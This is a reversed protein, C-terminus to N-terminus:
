MVTAECCGTVCYYGPACAPEGPLGCPQEGNQCQGTPVGGDTQYCDPPLTTKGICLECRGCGNFCGQVIECPRCKTPDDKAALTCTGQGSSDVSGLYVGNTAGGDTTGGIVCCGFCDCGNPTLPGCFSHCTASQTTYLGACTQGNPFNTSPNYPCGTEPDMAPDQENPDCSHNWYCQDNGSGTDQDFYCDSKCPANNQGPINGSFGAENNQCAGLCDPDESDILGDGDNDMCDGCQYLKGQCTAPFCLVSGDHVWIGGDPLPGDPPNIVGSLDVIPMDNNGMNPGDGNGSSEGCGALAFGLLGVLLASRM